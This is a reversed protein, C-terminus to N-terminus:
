KAGRSATYSVHLAGARVRIATLVKTLTGKSVVVNENNALTWVIDGNVFMDQTEPSKSLADWSDITGLINDYSEKDADFVLGEVEIPLYRSIDRKVKLHGLEILLQDATKDNRIPELSQWSEILSNYLEPTYGADWAENDETEEDDSIFQGDEDRARVPQKPELNLWEIYKDFWDWTTCLSARRAHIQIGKEKGHAIAARLTDISSTGPRQIQAVYGDDNETYFETLIAPVDSLTEYQM